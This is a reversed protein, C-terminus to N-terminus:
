DYCSSNEETLQRPFGKLMFLSFVFSVDVSACRSEVLCFQKSDVDQRKIGIYKGNCLLKLTHYKMVLTEKRRLGAWFTM